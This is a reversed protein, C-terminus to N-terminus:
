SNNAGSERKLVLDPGNIVAGFAAAALNLPLFHGALPQEFGAATKEILWV